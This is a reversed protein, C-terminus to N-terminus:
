GWDTESDDRIWDSFRDFARKYELSNVFDNIMEQKSNDSIFEIFDKDSMDEFADILHEHFKKDLGSSSRGGFPLQLQRSDEKFLLDLQERIITIINM